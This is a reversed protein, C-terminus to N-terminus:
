SLGGRKAEMYSSIMEHFVEEVGSGSSAADALRKMDTRMRAHSEESRFGLTMEHGLLAQMWGLRPLIMRARRASERDVEELAHIYLMWAVQMRALRSMAEGRLRRRRPIETPDTYLQLANGLANNESKESIWRADREWASNRERIAEELSPRNGLGLVCSWDGGGYVKIWGLESWATLVPDEKPLALVYVKEAVSMDDAPDIPPKVEVWHGKEGRIDAWVALGSVVWSAYGQVIPSGPVQDRVVLANQKLEHWDLMRPYKATLWGIKGALGPIGLPFFTALAVLFITATARRRQSGWGDIWTAVAIGGLVSGALASQLIFRSPDQVVWVLPAAAWALLLPLQERKGLAYFVGIFWFIGVLPDIWWATDGKQGIYWALSRLFHIWYPATVVTVGVAVYMLDRFRKTLLAAIFIGLPATAFGGLHSYCALSTVLISLPLRKELFLYIAWPTLVFMWGSPVNVSFSISAFLSGSLAAAALLAGRDGAFRRAFFVATGLAALWGLLAMLANAAVYDDGEGGLLRGLM